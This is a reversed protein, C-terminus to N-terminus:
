ERGLVRNELINVQIPMHRAEEEVLNELLRLGALILLQEFASSQAGSPLKAIRQVTKRIAGRHDRLRALIGIVNDGVSPSELLREGDLSRIDVLDYRFSMGPGCLESQMRLPPEGLYLLVQRPFRGRIVSASGRLLAKLTVDYDQM